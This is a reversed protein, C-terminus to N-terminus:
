TRDVNRCAIMSIGTGAIDPIIVDGMKVPAEVVTKKITEMATLLLEKPLPSASRVPLLALRGNRIRVTSSLVREPHVVESSAYTLGRRCSNGKVERIVKEGNEEEWDVSISCGKPCIVCTVLSTEM